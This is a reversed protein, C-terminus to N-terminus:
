WSLLHNCLGALYPTLNFYLVRTRIDYVVMSIGAVFYVGIVVAPGFFDNSGAIRHEVVGGIGAIRNHIQFFFPITITFPLGM